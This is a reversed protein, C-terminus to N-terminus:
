TSLKLKPDDPFSMPYISVRRRRRESTGVRPIEGFAAVAARQEKAYFFAGIDDNDDGFRLEEQQRLLWLIMSGTSTLQELSGDDSEEGRRNEDAKVLGIM